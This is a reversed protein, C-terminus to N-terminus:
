AQSTQWCGRRFLFHIYAHLRISVHIYEPPRCLIRSIFFVFSMSLGSDPPIVCRKSLKEKEERAGQDLGEQSLEVFAVCFFNSMCCGPPSFNTRHTTPLVRVTMTNDMSANQLIHTSSVASSSCSKSPSAKISKQPSVPEQKCEAM